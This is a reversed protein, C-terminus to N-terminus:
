SPSLAPAREAADRMAEVADLIMIVMQGDAPHFRYSIDELVLEFRKGFDASFNPIRALRVFLEKEEGNVTGTYRVGEHDVRVRGSGSPGFEGDLDSVELLPVDAEIAFDPDVVREAMRAKQWAHWRSPDEPIVDDKGSPHLLGYDDMQGENGCASCWIRRGESRIALEKKCRPCQHLVRELGDAPKKCRFKVHQERAWNYDNYSLAEVIGAHIEEVSLTSIQEHTYLVRCHSDIRGIRMHAGSKSWRPWTLYAGTLVNVVVASGSKKVTRAIADEFRLNTGDPSRMGEPFVGLLGDRRLVRFMAKIARTDTRFQVKPICGLQLLLYRLIPNRFLDNQAVMNFHLPWCALAAIFPDFYSPHNGLIIAPGKMAHVGPEVTRRVRLFLCALRTLTVGVFYWFRSPQRGIGKKDARRALRRGTEEM